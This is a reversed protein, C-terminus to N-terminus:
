FGRPNQRGHLYGRIRCVERWTEEDVAQPSLARVQCIARWCCGRTLSEPGFSASQLDALIEEDSSFHLRGPYDRRRDRGSPVTRPETIANEIGASAIREAAEPFLKVFRDNTTILFLDPRQEAIGHLVDPDSAVLRSLRRFTLFEAPHALFQRIMHRIMETILREWGEPM